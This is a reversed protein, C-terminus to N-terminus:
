QSGSRNAVSCGVVAVSAASRLVHIAFMNSLAILALRRPIDGARLSRNDLELFGARYAFRYQINAAARAFVREVEGGAPMFDPADVKNRHRDLSRRCLRALASQGHVKLNAVGQLESRSPCVNSETM